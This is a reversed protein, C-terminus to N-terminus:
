PLATPDRRHRAFQQLTATRDLTPQRQEPLWKVAQPINGQVMAVSVSAGTPRGWEHEAVLAAGGWIVLLSVVIRIRAKGRLVYLGVILASSLMVVASVGFVGFVPALGAAPTALQSYGLALWPFGLVLWGRLWETLVWGPAVALLASIHVKETISGRLFRCWLAGLVAPYLAVFAVFAITILLSFALVPLGFQHISVQVWSVGVGFMGCGFLWGRRFARKPRVNLWSVILVAPAFIALWWWGFPAFAFPVSAGAVLCGFDVLRPNHLATM